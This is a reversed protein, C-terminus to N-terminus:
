AGKRGVDEPESERQALELEAELAETQAITRALTARAQALAAEKRAIEPEVTARRARDLAALEALHRRHAEDVM